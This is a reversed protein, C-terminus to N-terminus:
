FRHGRPGDLWCILTQTKSFCIMSFSLSERIPNISVPLEPQKSRADAAARHPVSSTWSDVGRYPKPFLLTGTDLLMPPHLASMFISPTMAFSTGIRTTESSAWATPRNTPRVNVSSGEKVYALTPPQKRNQCKLSQGNACKFGNSCWWFSCSFAPSSTM